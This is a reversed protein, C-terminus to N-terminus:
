RSWLVNGNSDYKRVFADTFGNSGGVILANGSPDVAVGGAFDNGPTGFERVWQPIGPATGGSHHGDCKDHGKGRTHYSSSVEPWVTPPRRDDLMTVQGLTPTAQALGTVVMLLVASKFPIRKM